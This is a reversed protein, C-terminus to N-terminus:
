FGQLFNQRSNLNMTKLCSMPNRQAFNVFEIPLIKKDTIYKTSANPNVSNCNKTNINKYNNTLNNTNNACLKFM